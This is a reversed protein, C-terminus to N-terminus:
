RGGVYRVMNMLPYPPSLQNFSWNHVLDERIPKCLKEQGGDGSINSHSTNNSLLLSDTTSLIQVQYIGLIVCKVIRDGMNRM